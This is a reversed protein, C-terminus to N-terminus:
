ANRAAILLLPDGAPHVSNPDMGRALLGRLQDARDNNVAFVLYDYAGQAGVRPSLCLALFLSVLVLPALRIDTSRPMSASCDSSTTPPPARSPTSRSVACARSRRPSM